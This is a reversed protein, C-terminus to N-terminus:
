GSISTIKTDLVSFGPPMPSGAVAKTTGAMALATAESVPLRTRLSGKVACAIACAQISQSEVCAGSLASASQPKPLVAMTSSLWIPDGAREGSDVFVRVVRTTRPVLAQFDNGVNHFRSDCNCHAGDRRQICQQSARTAGMEWKQLLLRM